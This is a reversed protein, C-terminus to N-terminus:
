RSRMAVREGEVVDRVFADVELREPPLDVVVRVVDEFATLPPAPLPRVGAGACARLLGQHGTRATRPVQIPIAWATPPPARRPRGSLASRSGSTRRSPM